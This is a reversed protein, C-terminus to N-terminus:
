LHELLVLWGAYALLTAVGIAAYWGLSQASTRESEEFLAPGVHPTSEVDRALAALPV